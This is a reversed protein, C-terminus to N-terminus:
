FSGGAIVDGFRDTDGYADDLQIEIQRAREQSERYMDDLMEELDHEIHKILEDLLTDASMISSLRNARVGELHRLIAEASTLKKMGIDGKTKNFWKVKGTPM